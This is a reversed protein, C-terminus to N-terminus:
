FFGRQWHKLFAMVRFIIQILWLSSLLVVTETSACKRPVSSLMLASIWLSLLSPAFDHHVHCARTKSSWWWHCGMSLSDKAGIVPFIKKCCGKEFHQGAGRLVSKLSICSHQSPASLPNWFQLFLKFVSPASFPGASARCLLKLHWHFQLRCPARACPCLVVAGTCVSCCSWPFWQEGRSPVRSAGRSRSYRTGYAQFVWSSGSIRFGALAASAVGRHPSQLVGLGHFHSWDARSLPPQPVIPMKGQSFHSVSFSASFWKLLNM